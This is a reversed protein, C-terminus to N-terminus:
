YRHHDRTDVNDYPTQMHSALSHWAMTHLTHQYPVALCRLCRETVQFKSVTVKLGCEVCQLFVSAARLNQLGGFQKLGRIERFHNLTYPSCNWSSVQRKGQGVGDWLHAHTVKSLHVGQPRPLIVENHLQLSYLECQTEPEDPRLPAM